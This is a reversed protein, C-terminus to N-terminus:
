EDAELLSPDDNRANNVRPSVPHEQMRDAPFPDYCPELAAPEDLDPDLWTEEDEPRLIVPMRNHFRELLANPRTTLVTYAEVVEGDGDVAEDYLGALAFFPEDSVTFYHPLKKGGAREWEYFGNAPVLCRQSRVLKRFSPKEAVTEARANFLPPASRGDKRQWKPILGWRMPRLEREGDQNIVVVPLEETPAANFRPRMAFLGVPVKFRESIDEVDELVYRGCM